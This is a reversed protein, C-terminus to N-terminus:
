WGSGFERQARATPAVVSLPPRVSRRVPQPEVGLALMTQADLAEVEAAMARSPRSGSTGIVGLLHERRMLLRRVTEHDQRGAAVAMARSLTWYARQENGTGQARGAPNVVATAM